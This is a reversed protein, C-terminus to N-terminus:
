IRNFYMRIATLYDVVQRYKEPSFRGKQLYLSLLESMQFRSVVRSGAKELDDKGGHQWDVLIVIAAVILGNSKVASVAEFKSDAMVVTDDIILVRWGKQYDGQLIPLVKRGRETEEKELTLLPVSAMKSFIQAFPDGAKPIGIVCDYQIQQKCVLQYLVATIREVLRWTLAGKPPFRLNVKIPSRPADPHQEHLKFEFPGDTLILGKDFIDLALRKLEEDM